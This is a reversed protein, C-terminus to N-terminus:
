LLTVLTNCNEGGYGTFCACTGSSYDCKGRRGCEYSNYDALVAETYNSFPNMDRTMLDLGTIKPTCGTSCEYTEVEIPHQPGQVSNGTFTINISAEAGALNTGAGYLAMAGTSTQGYMSVSVQVGDIVKNPLNLLALEIDNAFDAPSYSDFVIPITTFTENLRTKFTFAFTKPNSASPLGANFVFRLSQVQYKTTVLLNDRISLIDNGYPCLRKSCDFDGYQADCVCARSKFSDWGKYTIVAPDNQYDQLSYDGWTAKYPLEDIYECTGHGSCGNPCTQRACAKGEYGDFCECEGTSRDCTGRGACETYKHFLGAKNPADVWSIEFPCIRESCDGSDRSLGMGWNDYCACVDNTMCAGHGSCYDCDAAAAAIIALSILTTLM